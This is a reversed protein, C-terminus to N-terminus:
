SAASRRRQQREEDLRMIEDELDKQALSGDMSMESNEKVSSNHAYDDFIQQKKAILKVLDEDISDQAILRHVVVNRSQGMRYVRAIAQNETSPKFQPEMLIVVQAAQINLGLGGSTIQSAIVAFGQKSGLNDIIQMRENSTKKGDIIPCGGAITSVDQVVKTFFSFVIVKRGEEKYIELLERLRNYKSSELDGMGITLALRRNMYDKANALTPNIEEITTPIVEDQKTLPPLEILVDSQTRRLYVPALRHRVESPSPSYQQVLSKISESLSFNTMAVLYYLESIRNELATGTMLVIYDSNASLSKVNQTRKAKPSKVMHAEDIAVLDVKYIYGILNSTADYTTVAVGGDTKWSNLNQFLDPGYLLFSKLKTHKAIERQWNILVSKPVIVLFHTKGITTLHCMTALVQITKGLGMDDGLLTRKQAIIYQAGFQQYTRLTATMLSLDLVVSEAIKAIELPLEGHIGNNSLRVNSDTYKQEVPGQNSGTPYKKTRRIPAVADLLSFFWASNNTFRNVPNDPGSKPFDVIKGYERNSFSILNEVFPTITSVYDLVQKQKEANFNISRDTSHARIWNISSDLKQKKDNIQSIIDRLEVKIREYRAVEEILRVEEPLLKDPDLRIQTTSFIQEKLELYALIIGDATSQGIGNISQLTQNNYGELDKITAFGNNLLAQM